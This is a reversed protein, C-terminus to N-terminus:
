APRGALLAPAMEEHLYPALSRAFFELMHNHDGYAVVGGIVSHCRGDSCFFERLDVPVIGPDDAGTAARLLPDRGAARREPATCPDVRTSAQAVCTPIDGLRMRPVDGIVVVKKGAATWQRWTERYGEEMEALQDRDSLGDILYNRSSTSTLVVDLAEDEVVHRSVGRNWARCSPVYEPYNRTRLPAANVPCSAKALLTVNWRHELALEEVAGSWHRAHSDGVLAVQLSSEERPVGFECAEVESGTSNQLCTSGWAPEFRYNDVRLLPSDEFRLRHSDDCSNAVARAAFCPDASALATDVEETAGEVRRELAGQAAAGLLVVVAMGAAAPLFTFRAPGRTLGRFRRVPDEVLRLSLWSVVLMGGLLLVKAPVDLPEGTAHPVLVIAPWHWLYLSYSIAGVWLGAALGPRVARPVTRLFADGSWIVAATGLVPVVTIWGPVASGEDLLWISGLLATWGLLAVLHRRITPAPSLAPALALLGGAGLQWMRAPTVFYAADPSQATAVVSYALSAVVVVGFAGAVAVRPHRSWRRGAAYAGFALLPWVLYFQEELSLSWYHTVPSPSDASAFYDEADHALVWNQVYLASATIQRMVTQWQTAPVVLLSAVASVLLVLLSAPLLRRVRRAWFAALGVRGTRDLERLLHASILYGSIVFFIDVGIYGGPLLGPALHNVVVALVAVARLLQIEPRLGAGERSEPRTAPPAAREDVSLGTVRLL